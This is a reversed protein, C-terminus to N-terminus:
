VSDDTVELRWIFSVTDWVSRWDGKKQLRHLSQLCVPGARPTHPFPANSHTPRPPNPKPRQLFRQDVSYFERLKINARWRGRIRWLIAAFCKTWRASRKAVRSKRGLQKAFWCERFCVNHQWQEACQATLKKSQCLTINMCLTSDIKFFQSISM